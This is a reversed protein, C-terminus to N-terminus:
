FELWNKEVAARETYIICHFSICYVNETKKVLSVRPVM